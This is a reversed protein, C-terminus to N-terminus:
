AEYKKIETDLFALEAELMTRFRANSCQGLEGQVRTRSLLLCRLKTQREIDVPPSPIGGRTTRAPSADQIQSQVAKSEWGRAM